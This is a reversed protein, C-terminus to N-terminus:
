QGHVESKRQQETQQGACKCVDGNTSSSGPKTRGPELWAKVARDGLRLELVKRCERLRDLARARNPGISGVPIKLRDSIEAYSLQPEDLLLTVLQRQLESLQSSAELLARRCEVNDHPSLDTEEDTGLRRYCDDLMSVKSSRRRGNIVEHRVTTFIWGPLARPDRLRNVSELLRLWVTQSVDETDHRPLGYRRVVSQILANTKDLDDLWQVTVEPM